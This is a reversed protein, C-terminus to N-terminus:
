KEWIEGQWLLKNRGKVYILEQNYPEFEFFCRDFNPLMITLYNYKETDIYEDLIKFMIRSKYLITGSVNANLSFIIKNVNTKRDWLHRSKPVSIHTSETTVSKVNNYNFGFTLSVPHFDTPFVVQIYLSDQSFRNEKRLQYDFGIQKTYHDESTIEIINNAAVVSWRGKSAYECQEVVPTFKIDPKYLIYTGDANLELKETGEKLKYSGALYVSEIDRKRQTICCALHCAALILFFSKRM